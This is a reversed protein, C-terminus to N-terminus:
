ASLWPTVILDATGKYPNTGGGDLTETNLLELAADELSPPVVLTKPKIGLIRGESSRFDMMLARASAYNTRNLTAKSGFALQPLGFGANVRARVGYLYEDEFFVHPNNSETLATFEYKKREQFIIPKINRSTDLLFWPEGAGDQFNSFTTANGDKDKAPHDADFYPQGDFCEATFGSALLAFVLEEPHTRALEGMESFIPKFTGLKDDEIKDRPVAVTSEFKKNQIAFGHAALNKVERPGIWERLQPFAGLWGYEESEGESTVTMAIKDWNVEANLYADTYVSQFGKFALALNAANIIM